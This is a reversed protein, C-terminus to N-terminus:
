TLPSIGLSPETYRDMKMCAAFCADLSIRHMSSIATPLQRTSDLLLISRTGLGPQAYRVTLIRVVWGLFAFDSCVHFIYWLEGAFYTLLTCSLMLNCRLELFWPLPESELGHIEVARNHIKSHKQSSLRPADGPLTMDASTELTSM